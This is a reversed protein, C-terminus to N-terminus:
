DEWQGTIWGADELRELRGLVGYVTSGSRKTAKAIAWDHLQADDNLAQLFVEV